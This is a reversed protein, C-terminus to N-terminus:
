CHVLTGTEGGRTEQKRKITSMRVPRLNYRVTTKIQMEMIILRTLCRKMHKNNMWINKSSYRNKKGIKFQTSQNKINFKLLEKYIRSILGMDSIHNAFIKVM